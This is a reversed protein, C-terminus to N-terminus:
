GCKCSLLESMTKGICKGTCFLWLVASHFEDVWAHMYFLIRSTFSFSQVTFIHVNDLWMVYATRLIRTLIAFRTKTPKWLSNLGSMTEILRAPLDVRLLVCPSLSAWIFQFSYTYTNLMRDLNGYFLAKYIGFLIRIFQSRSPPIPFLFTTSIVSAHMQILQISILEFTYNPAQISHEIYYVNCTYWIPLISEFTSFSVKTAIEATYIYTQFETTFLLLLMRERSIINKKKWLIHFSSCTWNFCLVLFNSKIRAATLIRNHSPTFLILLALRLCSFWNMFFFNQVLTQKTQTHIHFRDWEVSYWESVVPTAHM